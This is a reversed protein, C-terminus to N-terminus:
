IIKNIYLVDYNKEKSEIANIWEKFESKLAQKDKGELSSIRKLASNITVECSGLINTNSM